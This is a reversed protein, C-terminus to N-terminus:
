AFIIVATEEKEIVLRLELKNENETLIKYPVSVSLLEGFETKREVSLEPLISEEESSNGILIVKNNNNKAKYATLM